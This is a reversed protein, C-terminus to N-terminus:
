EENPTPEALFDDVVLTRLPATAKSYTLGLTRCIQQLASEDLVYPPGDQTDVPWDLNFDYIGTLQTDDEVVADLEASLWDVFLSFGLRRAEFRGRGNSHTTRSSGSNTRGVLQPLLFGKPDLAIRYKRAPRTEWHARLGLRDALMPATMEMAYAYTTGLPVIADIRYRLSHM